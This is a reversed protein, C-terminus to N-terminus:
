TRPRAQRLRRTTQVRRRRGAMPTTLLSKLRARMTKKEAANAFTGKIRNELTAARVLKHGLLVRVYKLDKERGAALKSVALDHIGPWGTVGGTNRTRFPVLRDTWDDPITALDPSVCDVFYPHRVAFSSRRGLKSVILSVAQHNNRPYIDVERSTLCLRPPKALLGLIAQSGFVVFDKEHAIEGAMRLAQELQTKTM